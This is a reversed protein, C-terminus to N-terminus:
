PVKKSDSAAGIHSHKGAGAVQSRAGGSAQLGSVEALVVLYHTPSVHACIVCPDVQSAGNGAFTPLIKPDALLSM